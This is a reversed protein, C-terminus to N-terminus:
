SRAGEMLERESRPLMAVFADEITAPRTEVSRVALGSRELFDILVEAPEPLGRTTVRLVDAFVSIDEVADLGFLAARARGPDSPTLECVALRRRAVLQEPTGVDLVEGQAVFAVRQCREAEDMYHTTLLVTTGAAAVAHIRAWFARRSVPDVNATPEDLVLLAPRHLTACALAVRQRWGGSLPGALRHRHAGLGGQEIAADIVARLRRWPVCYINAYFELNETVTLDEYLSFRQTMYGVHQKVREAHQFLDFGVVTGRGESPTMIGCLMRIVTSKGAGNPGLIGFIEGRAVQLSVNKVAVVDGFRKTLGHVDIVPELNPAVSAAPEHGFRLTLWDIM